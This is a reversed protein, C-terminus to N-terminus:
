PHNSRPDWLPVRATSQYAMGHPYSILEVDTGFPTRFYNITQGAAPGDTVAFPGLRKQAGLSQLHDVAKAINRVYFAIHHGGWDSNLRFATDQDPATYQFLEVGPGNGARIMRIREAVARPDVDVLAHMFDGMPDSFPGFTLPNAGGLLTEFWTAAADVDPVTIGVHDIGVLGPVSTVESSSGNRTPSWLPKVGPVDYAMGHPYSILEIYTGFPTRFYNITQGAAPGATLSFPGLFKEVGKAEMYAVAAAIDTVYFAIHHGSWDSNRPHTHQQGPAEYQFLEINASHGIRLVTIQDIVARPDVGLLDHMLTGQPDAIPGFSLPATAGMVEEFWAVAEAIDPVTLGVHDAGVLGLEGRGLRAARATGAALLPLATAGAAVAASQKLFARRDGRFEVDM